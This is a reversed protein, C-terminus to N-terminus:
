HLHLPLSVKNSLVYGYAGNNWQLVAAHGTLNGHAGTPRYSITVAGNPASISGGVYNTPGGPLEVIANNNSVAYPFTLQPLGVDLAADGPDLSPTMPTYPSGFMTTINTFGNTYSSTLAGAPRIWSINGGPSGSSFNVWGEILGRNGYLPIYLPWYGQQSIPVAQSVPTGDGLTGILSILGLPTNTIFGFGFGGPSYVPAGAGPAIAMTYRASDPFHNVSSYPAIDAMLVSEWPDSEPSSITGTIQRAVFDLHLAVTLTTKGSRQINKTADGHVNFTGSLTYTGGDVKLTGSFTTDPRVLLNFIAGASKVRVGNTEYFLGNYSGSANNAIIPNTVFNAVLSLNDAMRFLLAPAGSIEAGTGDVWNSFVNGAAPKASIGYNRGIELIANNSAAGFTYPSLASTSGAGTTNVHFTSPVRLFVNLLNTSSWGAADTVVATFTNTGAVLSVTNTWHESNPAGVLTPVFKMPANPPWTRTITLGAVRSNDTASGSIVIRPATSTITGFHTAFSNTFRANVTPYSFKVTPRLMDRTVSLHGSKSSSLVTSQCLMTGVYCQYTGADTSQVSAITYASDTAGSINTGNKAWQFTMQANATASITFTVTNGVMKVQNAPQSTIAPAIEVGLAAVRSTISGSENTVICFYDGVNKSTAPGVALSFNTEGDISTATASGFSAFFWQYSLNAGCAQATFVNTGNVSVCNDSPETLFVPDVVTVVANSSNLVTDGAVQVYYTGADLRTIGPVSLTANTADLVISGNHMWQYTPTTSGGVLITLSLTDCANLTQNTPQTLIASADSVTLLAASSSASGATNTIICSYSGADAHGIGTLTLSAGTVGSVNGGNGLLAGNKMWSYVFPATGTV